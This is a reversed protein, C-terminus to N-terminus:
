AAVAAFPEVSVYTERRVSGDYIKRRKQSFVVKGAIKAHLTFDRAQYANEGPWFKNGQQRILIAGATVTEGEFAKVGLRKANSDRGNSVAGVAKKTAM